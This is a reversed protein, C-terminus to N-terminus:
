HFVGLANCLSIAEVEAERLEHRKYTIPCDVCSCNAFPTFIGLHMLNENRELGINKIRKDHQHTPKEVAFTGSSEFCGNCKQCIAAVLNSQKQINSLNKCAIFFADVRNRKCRGCIVTKANGDTKCRTNCLACIDSGFYASIMTSGGLRTIPWYHIRRRPKPCAEYWSNINIRFPALGFCRQLAANVHRKSYYAVHLTFSDWQELLETPTLVCDRLKFTCGPSAVIVYPLREKHAIARGPDVEALRRALSAQVPGIKGGRYHSRVRGTLIFDSIPLRGAHILSWQRFLYQKVRSLDRSSFFTILANRLIKQTLACQDRRVTEIGKAEFSPTKQNPSEYKMGCYKKKKFFIFGFSCLLM